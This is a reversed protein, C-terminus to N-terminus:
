VFGTSSSSPISEVTQHYRDWGLRERAGRGPHAGQRLAVLRGPELVDGVRAGRDEQACDVM